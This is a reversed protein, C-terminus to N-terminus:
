LLFNPYTRISTLSFIFPESTRPELNVRWGSASLAKAAGFAVLTRPHKEAIRGVESPNKEIRVRLPFNILPPVGSGRVESGM